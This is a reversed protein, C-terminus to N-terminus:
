VYLLSKEVEEAIRRYRPDKFSRKWSSFTAIDLKRGLVRELHDVLDFFGFGLPKGLEVLLDIDSTGKATGKVFSGFLAMKTIGYKEYLYPLERELIKLVEDKTLSKAIKVMM